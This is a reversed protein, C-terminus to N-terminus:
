CTARGGRSRHSIDNRYMERRNHYSQESTLVEFSKVNRRNVYERRRSILCPIWARTVIPLIALVPDRACNRAASRITKDSTGLTWRSSPREIQNSVACIKSGTVVNANNFRSNRKQVHECYINNNIFLKWIWIDMNHGYQTLTRLVLYPNSGGSCLRCLRRIGVSGWGGHSSALVRLKWASSPWGQVANTMHSYANTVCDISARSIFALSVAAINFAKGFPHIWLEPDSYLIDIAKKDISACLTSIISPM